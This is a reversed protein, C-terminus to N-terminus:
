EVVPKVDGKGVAEVREVLTPWDVQRNFGVVTLRPLGSGEVITFSNGASHLGGMDCVQIGHGTYASRVIADLVGLAQFARLTAGTITIGAGYVRWQPDSDVLDVAVGLKRLQIAASM